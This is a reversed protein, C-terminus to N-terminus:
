SAEVYRRINTVQATWGGDNMRYAEPRRGPPIRDFGSEVVTLVTEKGIDELRFEVLTTPQEEGPATRVERVIEPEARGGDRSAVRILEPDDRRAGRRLLAIEVRAAHLRLVRQHLRAVHLVGRGRTACADRFHERPREERPRLRHRAIHREDLQAREHVRIRSRLAFRLSMPRRISGRRRAWRFPERSVGAIKEIQRVSRARAVRDRRLRVECRASGSTSSAKADWLVRRRVDGSARPKISRKARGHRPETPFHRVVDADRM